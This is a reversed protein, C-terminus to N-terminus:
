SKKRSLDLIIETSIELWYDALSAPIKRGRQARVENQFAEVQSVAAQINGKALSKGANDLKVTLSSMIGPEIGSEQVSQVLDELTMPEVVAFISLSDVIGCLSGNEVWSDIKQWVGGDTRHFLTISGANKFQIGTLDICISISGSYSASTEISYYTPPTGLKFGAPPPPGSSSTTVTTSGGSTVNEFVLTVPTTQTTPDVPRVVIDNGAPTNIRVWLGARIIENYGDPYFGYGVIQGRDNIDMAAARIEEQGYRGKLELVGEQASWLFSRTAEGLFALTPFFPYEPAIRSHGIVQGLNNIDEVFNHVSGTAQAALTGLDVVGGALTWLFPRIETNNGCYGVVEGNENVAVARAQNNAGAGCPGIASM